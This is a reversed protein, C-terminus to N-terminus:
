YDDYCLISRDWRLICGLYWERRCIDFKLHLSDKTRIEHGDSDLHHQLLWAHPLQPRLRREHKRPECRDRRIDNDMICGLQERRLLERMCLRLHSM